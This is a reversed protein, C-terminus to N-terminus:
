GCLNKIHDTFILRRNIPWNLIIHRDTDCLCPHEYERKVRSQPTIYSAAQARTKVEWIRYVAVTVQIYLTFLIKM